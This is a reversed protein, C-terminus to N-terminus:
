GGTQKSQPLAVGLPKHAAQVASNGSFEQAQLRQASGSYAVSCFIQPRQKFRAGANSAAQLGNM